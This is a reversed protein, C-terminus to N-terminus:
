ADLNLWKYLAGAPSKLWNIFFRSSAKICTYLGLASNKTQPFM